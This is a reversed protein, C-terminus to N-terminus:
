ASPQALVRAIDRMEMWWQVKPRQFKTDVMRPFDELNFFVFEENQLGIFASQPNPKGVEQLLYDVCKVVMETARIRDVPTPNGGQQLHGLIAQRVDFLDGGEEEFLAMMFNTNYLNHANENRIVLGVRKGLQFGKSIHALDSLLDLLTVGEEHLYVREAGTALGGMLALYGCYHGMVEVIFCRNSAVATQKIKDVAEVINNLATDVGVSVESGPLNNNISAPLCVMPIDFAPFNEVETLMRYLGQYGYDGGIMLIGDIQYEEINKAIAYFDKGEPVHRNTGLLAGGEPAWGSVSMWGLEEILGEAFGTFGNRVGLIQHGKDLMIRVAVRVAMNMGPAPGGTHLVAFRYPKSGDAPVRPKAQVITRFTRYAEVFEKGRLQMAKDYEQHQIAAAVAKTQHVCEMLPSKSPRNGHVGILLSEEEPSANLVERAATYGEITSMIRDYASPSGGRQVHGLITVRTDEGLRDELVSKIYNSTIPNGQRDKAGEAVIVISARRGAERGARLTECMKNEWDAVDPPNEPILLWEAGTALAAMLALYGCNRGMVEIVFTRQHSAATSFIADIAEIIRHLASDTGITMDTGYMDNDISGVLGVILLHPHAAAIFPDIEQKDVLEQLLGAWEERFLNAGTLSGDGGIVVLRDIGHELLNKAAQLRGSREKFEMCRATGLITGGKQLIGGVSDWNLPQIYSGGAVMGRYGEYIAFVEAGASLATRVIARVAANMGQADGGSTLVGIRQTTQAKM